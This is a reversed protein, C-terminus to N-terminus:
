NYEQINKRHQPCEWNLRYYTMGLLIAAVFGDQTLETTGLYDLLDRYKRVMKEHSSSAVENYYNILFRELETANMKTDPKKPKAKM